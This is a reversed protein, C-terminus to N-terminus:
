RREKVSSGSGELLLSIEELQNNLLVNIQDGKFDLPMLIIVLENNDKRFGFIHSKIDNTYFDIYRRFDYSIYDLDIANLGLGKSHQYVRASDFFLEKNSVVVDSFTILKEKEIEPQIEFFLELEIQEYKFKKMNEEELPYMKLLQEFVNSKLKLLCYINGIWVNEEHRCIIIQEGPYGSMKQLQILHDQGIDYMIM